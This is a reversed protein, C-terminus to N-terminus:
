DNRHEFAEAINIHHFCSTCMLTAVHKSKPTITWSIPMLTHKSSMACQYAKRQWDRKASAQAEEQVDAVTGDEEGEFKEQM